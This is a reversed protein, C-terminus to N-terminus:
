QNFVDDAMKMLEDMDEQGTEAGAPAEEAVPEDTVDLKLDVPKKGQPVDVVPTPTALAAPEEDAFEEIYLYPNDKVLISLNAVLIERLEDYSKKQYIATLDYGMNEYDTAVSEPISERDDQYSPVGTNPDKVMIQNKKVEYATDFNTGTRSVNTWVGSDAADSGLSTPDQNYDMIYDNMLKLMQKHATTKLETIGVSGSKDIMNYAYVGKPRLNSIFINTDKLIAKIEEETKGEAALEMKIKEVKPRLLDLYEWIPSSGEDPKCDAYPRRNGTSPDSLGWTVSWYVYPYGNCAEGFPPLPRLINDGDKIKHRVAKRYTKLSDMNIKINAM